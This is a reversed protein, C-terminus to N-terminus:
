RPGPSSNEPRARDRRSGEEARVLRLVARSRIEELQRGEPTREEERAVRFLYQGDDDIPSSTRPRASRRDRLDRGDPRRRAPGQRGLRPRRRPEGGARRLRRPRDERLRRRRRDRGQHKAMDPRTASSRSSTSASNPRSRPSSSATPRSPRRPDAELVVRRLQQRRQRLRRARRRQRDAGRASEEDSEARAIADFQRRITRSSPTRRRPTTRPRPGVVPRRGPITATAAGAPITRRRTCSTASRSRTTRCTSRRRASTSRPQGRAASRAQHRRRRGQGRAERPRRRRPRGDRYKALTSATTSSSTRIYARRGIEPAIETVRGIRFIGDEGEIVATPTNSRPPSSRRRAFAEDAQRTTRRRDLRPRRAQPATSADTSVTKAVDEWTKGGQMDRLATDIKTAPRPSRRRPRSPQRRRELRRRSRSSGPTVRRPRRPRRSSGPTSTATRSAHRGGHDGSRGPDPHRHDARAVIPVLQERQQDVLQSQQTPRPRPDAPRGGEAHRHAPEAEDLRWSSSSRRPRAARGQHDVPRRRQRGVRPPRQLLDPRRRHRPHAVAAVVVLGFGINLYFNKRDRSEWSPKQARKVVPKARFTM